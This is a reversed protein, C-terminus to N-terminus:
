VVPESTFGFLPVLTDSPTGFTATQPLGNRWGSTQQKVGMMDLHQTTPNARTYGATSNGGFAMWYREGGPITVSVINGYWAVDDMDGPGTDDGPFAQNTPDPAWTLPGTRRVGPGEVQLSLPTTTSTGSATPPRINANPTPGTSVIKNGEYSYIGVDTSGKVPLAPEWFFGTVKLSEYAVFPIYVVLNVTWAAAGWGSDFIQIEDKIASEVSWPSVVRRNRLVQQPQVFQAADGAPM